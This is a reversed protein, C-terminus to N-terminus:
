LRSGIGYSELEYNNFSRLPPRNDLNIEFIEKIDPVKLIQSKLPSFVEDKVKLTFHVLDSDLIEKRNVDLPSDITDLLNILNMPVEEDVMIGLGTDDVKVYFKEFTFDLGNLDFIVDEGKVFYNVGMEIPIKKKSEKKFFKIMRESGKCFLV